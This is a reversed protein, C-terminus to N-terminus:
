EVLLPVLTKIIINEPVLGLYRSDFSNPRRTAGLYYSGEPIRHEKWVPHEVPRGRSDTPLIFGLSDCQGDHCVINEGTAKTTLVDGPLGLVQKCLLEGPYMYRRSKAWEPPTYTFCAIEGRQLSASQARAHSLYLGKPISDTKVWSLGYPLAVTAILGLALVAVWGLCTPRKKM